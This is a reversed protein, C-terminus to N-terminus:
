KRPCDCILNLLGRFVGGYVDLLAFILAITVSLLLTENKELKNAPLNSIVLYSILVLVLYKVMGKLFNEQQTM